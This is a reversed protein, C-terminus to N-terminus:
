VDATMRIPGRSDFMIWASKGNAITVTSGPGVCKLVISFAGTCTNNIWKSYANADTVTPLTLDRNATLAGTTCIAGYQYISSAPTQNADAMAQVGIGHVGYPSSTGYIPVTLLLSTSTVYLSTTGGISLRVQGTANVYTYSAQRGFVGDAGLYLWNSSDVFTACVDATGGANRMFVGDANAIRVGGAAAPATGVSVFNTGALVGSAQQLATGSSTVVGNATAPVTVDAAATLDVKKSAADWSGATSHGFGTGTPAAIGGGGGAAWGTVGATTTLVQGNTGSPALKAVAIAAGAAVDADVITSATSTEVGAAVKRVGTGGPTPSFSM